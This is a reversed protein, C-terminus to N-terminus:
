EKSDIKEKIKRELLQNIRQGDVKGRMNQMALGMLPGISRAGQEQIIKLNAEVLDDLIKNLETADMKSIAAKEISEVVSNAKKAMIKEFIIELSEKAIKGEALFQFANLIEVPKLLRSDLGQRELNTITGCLISAVFNPSIRKDHCIREFLDLYSSDFIQEALQANLQYTM